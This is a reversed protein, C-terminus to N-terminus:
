LPKLATTSDIYILADFRKPLIATGYVANNSYAAGISRMPLWTNFVPHNMIERSLLLKNRNNIEHLLNEWSGKRAEPVDIEQLPADWYYGAMVKGKNTGMAVSFVNKGFEKKLLQGLSNYGGEEMQSFRADGAHGNHVWIIVKSDPGHKQLLRKVTLEMYNERINWSEIKGSQMSRFYREGMLSLLAYQQLLFVDRNKQDRYERNVYNYLDQTLSSFNHQQAKVMLAYRLANNNFSDFKERVNNVLKLLAPDTFTFPQYTWEWFSYLDIGYVNIMRGSRVTYDNLWYVFDSFEHNSWMASPWRDYLKLVDTRTFSDRVPSNVLDNVRWTDTWDGEIAVFDFDKEEILRKSISARWKYFEHTGHTSEGLLVIRANGIEKILIDLDKESELPHYILNVSDKGNHNSVHDVTKRKASCSILMLLVIISFPFRMLRM